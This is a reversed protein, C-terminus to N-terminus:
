KTKIRAALKPGLFWALKGSKMTAGDEYEICAIHGKGFVLSGGSLLQKACVSMDPEHGVVAVTGPQDLSRLHRILKRADMGPSVFEEIQLQKKRLGCAKRLIEATQVARVLPSTIILDPKDGCTALTRALSKFQRRGKPTLPRDVDELGNPIREVAIAHRVLWLQM